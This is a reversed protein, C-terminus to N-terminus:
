KTREARRQLPFDGSEYLSRIAQGVYTEEAVELSCGRLEDTSLKEVAFLIADAAREFRRYDLSKNHFRPRKASFLGAELGYDFGSM